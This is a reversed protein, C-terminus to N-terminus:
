RKRRKITTLRGSKQLKLNSEGDRVTKRRDVGIVKLIDEESREGDEV